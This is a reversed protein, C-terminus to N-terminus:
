LLPGSKREYTTPAEIAETNNTKKNGRLRPLFGSSSTIESELKRRPTLVSTTSFLRLPRKIVQNSVSANKRIPHERVVHSTSRVFTSLDSDMESVTITSSCPKNSMEDADDVPKLTTSIKNSDGYSDGGASSIKSRQLPAGPEPDNTGERESSANQLRLVSYGPGCHLSRGQKNSVLLKIEKESIGYQTINKVITKRYREKVSHWSRHNLGTTVRVMDEWMRKAGVEKHRRNNLIFNLILMDETRTFKRRPHTAAINSTPPIDFSSVSDSSSSRDQLLYKEQADSKTCRLYRQVLTICRETADNVVRLGLSQKRADKFRNDEKWLCLGRGLLGRGCRTESLVTESTVCSPLFTSMTMKKWELGKLEKKVVPKDLAKVM